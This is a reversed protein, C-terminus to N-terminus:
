KREGAAPRSPHMRTPGAAELLRDFWRRYVALPHAGMVLADSTAVHVTPVGSVGLAVAAEHEGLVARLLAPDERTEFAAPPLGAEQWLAALTADDTIDRNEAFYAAFLREHMREFADEGLAAAAKAVLQPPVSHSPPGAESSWVRFRGADPEAAARQWSETYARFRALDRVAPPRPRLLWSQWSLAIRGAYERELACLRVAANYCWPCLYDSHVVLQLRV